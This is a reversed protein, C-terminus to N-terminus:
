SSNNRPGHPLPQYPITFKKKDDINQANYINNWNVMSLQQKLSTYNIKHHKVRYNCPPTKTRVSVGMPILIEISSLLGVNNTLLLDLQRPNHNTRFRTPERIWQSLDYDQIMNSLLDAPNRNESFASSTWIIFPFDSLVILNRLTNGAEKIM